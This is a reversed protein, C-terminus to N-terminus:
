NKLIDSGVYKKKAYNIKDEDHVESNCLNLYIEKLTNKNSM